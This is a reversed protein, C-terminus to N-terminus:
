QGAILHWAIAWMTLCVLADLVRWATPNKFFRALKNGGLVLAFFWLWSFTAAGLAFVYKGDEGHQGAISGLLLVTDLYVHPNLLTISLTLLVISRLGTCQKKEARLVASSNIASYLARCGYCLLFIAGAWAAITQLGPNMGVVKGTTMAGLFILVTDCLACTAAVAYQHQKRIGCSLVFANQAGIAVILSAGVMMGQLFFSSLM